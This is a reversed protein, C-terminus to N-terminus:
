NGMYLINKHTDRFTRICTLRKGPITETLSTLGQEDRYILDWRM